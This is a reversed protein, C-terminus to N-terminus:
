APTNIRKPFPVEHGLQASLSALAVKMDSFGHDVQSKLEEGLHDIKTNLTGHGEAILKISNDMQERLVGFNQVSQQLDKVEGGIEKVAQQISALSARPSNVTKKKVSSKNAKKKIAM